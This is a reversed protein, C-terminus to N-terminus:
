GTVNTENTENTMNDDTSNDEVDGGAQDIGETPDPADGLADNTSEDADDDDDDACGAIGVFAILLSALLLHKMDMRPAPVPSGTFGNQLM